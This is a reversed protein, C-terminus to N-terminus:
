AIGFVLNRLTEAAEEQMHPNSHSYIDLTLAVTTHGLRESVVKPHVGAQLALTAHTHRLDHLRIRQLGAASVLRNFRKSVATPHFPRLGDASFLLDDPGDPNLLEQHRKLVGITATDLAVVRQGRSTKPVSRQVEHGVTVFTQRVSLSRNVFDVDRWRLGLAEGRRLGTMAILFWLPHLADTVTSELFLRLENSSWTRMETYHHGRNRPPDADAAVNARELSYPASPCTTL